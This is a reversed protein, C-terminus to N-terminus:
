GGTHGGGGDGNPAIVTPTPTVPDTDYTTAHAGDNLTFACLSLALCLAFVRARVSKLQHM